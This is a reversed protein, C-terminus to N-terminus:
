KVLILSKMQSFRKVGHRRLRTDLKSGKGESPASVSRKTGLKQRAKAAIAFNQLESVAELRVSGKNVAKESHM